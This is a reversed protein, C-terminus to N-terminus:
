PIPARMPDLAPPPETEPGQSVVSHPPERLRSLILATTNPFGIAMARFRAVKGFWFDTVTYGDIEGLPSTRFRDKVLLQVDEPQLPEVQVVRWVENIRILPRSGALLLMDTAGDNRCCTELLRDLQIGPM